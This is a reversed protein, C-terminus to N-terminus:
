LSDMKPLTQPQEKQGTRPEPTPKTFLAEIERSDKLKEWHQKFGRIAAANEEAIKKAAERPAKAESSSSLRQCRHLGDERLHLSVSEGGDRQLPRQLQWCRENHGHGCEPDGPLRFFM